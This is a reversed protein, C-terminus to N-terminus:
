KNVDRTGLPEIVLAPVDVRRAELPTLDVGQIEVPAAERLPPLARTLWALEAPSVAEPKPSAARPRRVSNDGRPAADHSPVAATPAVEAPAVATAITADTSPRPASRPIIVAAVIAATATVVAWSWWAGRAQRASARPGLRSRVRAGLGRADARTLEGAVHTIVRDLDDRTSM